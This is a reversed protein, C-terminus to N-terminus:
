KMLGRVKLFEEFRDATTEWSEVRYDFADANMIHTPFGNMELDHAYPRVMGWTNRCGPTGCYVICDPNVTKAVQLTIDLWMYPQYYPGRICNVMPMRANIQALSDIMTDMTDTNIAYAADAYGNKMSPTQPIFFAKLLSGSQAIGREEMWNWFKFDVSFHDIYCFMARIKEEGSRLGSLGARAKRECETLMEKLIATYEPMGAFFYRGSYIILNYISPVPNPALRQLEEIEGILEDQKEHEKLIERLKDESLPSGTQKELFRILAKFDARHYAASREDVLTPPSNLQFFPKQLYASAFAYSTANTDCVGPTDCVVFDIDEALGALYAGLSGRQASCATETFGVECCYNLFDVTGRDWVLTAIVTLPELSVPVVDMAYFVAPSFCFTTIARKRGKAHATLINDLYQWVMKLYMQGVKGERAWVDLVNGYYPVHDIVCDIEKPTSLMIKSGVDMVNRLLSDFNYERIEPRM